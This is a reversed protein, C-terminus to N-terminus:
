ATLMLARQMYSVHNRWWIRYFPTEINLYRKVVRRDFRLQARVIAGIISTIIEIAKM